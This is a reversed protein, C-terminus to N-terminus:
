LVGIRCKSLKVMIKTLIQTSKLSKNLKSPSVDQRAVITHEYLNM